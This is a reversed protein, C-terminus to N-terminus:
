AIGGGEDSPPSFDNKYIFRNELIELRSRLDKLQNLIENMQQASQRDELLQLQTANTELIQSILMLFNGLSNQEDATLDGMLAFGLIVGLATMVEAPLSFFSESLMFVGGYIM